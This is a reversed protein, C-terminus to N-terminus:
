ATANAEDGGGEDTEGKAKAKAKADAKELLQLKKMEIEEATNTVSAGLASLEDGVWGIVAAAGAATAAALKNPLLKTLALGVSHIITRVIAALGVRLMVYFLGCVAAAGRWGAAVQRNVHIRLLLLGAQNARASKIEALRSAKESSPWVQPSGAEPEAAKRSPVVAGDFKNMFERATSGKGKFVSRVGEKVGRTLTESLKQVAMRRMPRGAPSALKLLMETSDLDKAIARLTAGNSSGFVTTFSELPTAAQAAQADAGAAALAPDLEAKNAEQALLRARSSAAEPLPGKDEAGGKAAKRAEQKKEAEEAQQQQILEEVREWQFTNGDTLLSSRLTKRASSTSPSLARQVAWPLAVEYINFNPDVQGAIGELTLFTRILLIIYPPTYMQWFFGMDGLVVSLAGFRSGGGPCAEMREKLEKAMIQTLDDGDPHTSQWPDPEKARWEIPTGIFGTDVFARVLGVYDKSLVCQIGMAFAEMIKDDVESMLGFDLFVLRGDDALMINGEHPDAHVLGTLVLGATVAECSMYTMRMAEEPDLASLHRGHVWEMVMARRTTLEPLTVPVDVYGLFSLSTKFAAANKAENRFDLEQVIGGAVLDFIALLDGNWYRGEIAKLAVIIVSGDLLCQRLANPRQVKVAIETGDHMEGRYVQGLSASAICDKTLSKFLMPGNPDYGDLLPLGPAIPGTANFDEAIVRYAEENPFPENSTQLGKLQECVEEPLIDPRQSLTQGVKVAVPGLRSLENRLVAGRDVGEPGDEWVARIRRFAQLFDFARAIMLQPRAQFYGMIGDRDYTAVGRDIGVVAELVAQPNRKVAELSGEIKEFIAPYDSKKIPETATPKETV